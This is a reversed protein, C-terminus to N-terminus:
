CWDSLEEFAILVDETPYTLQCFPLGSALCASFRAYTSIWFRADKASPTEKWEQAQRAWANTQEDVVALAFDRLAKVATRYEDLAIRSALYSEAEGNVLCALKACFNAHAQWANAMLETKALAQPRSLAFAM